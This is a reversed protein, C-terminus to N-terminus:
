LLLLLLLLMLHIYLSYFMQMLKRVFPGTYSYNSLHDDFLKGSERVM